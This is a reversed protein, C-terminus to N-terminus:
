GAAQSALWVWIVFAAFVGLCLAMELSHRRQTERRLQEVGEEPIQVSLREQKPASQQPLTRRTQAAAKPPVKRQKSTARMLADQEQKLRPAEQLFRELADIRAQLKKERESLAALEDDLSPGAAPRSNRPM